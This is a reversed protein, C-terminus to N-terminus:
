MYHRYSHSALPCWQMLGESYMKSRTENVVIFCSPAKHSLNHWINPAQKVHSCCWHTRNPSPSCSSLHLQTKNTHPPTANLLPGRFMNCQSTQETQNLHMKKELEICKIHLPSDAQFMLVGSHHGLSALTKLLAQSRIWDDVNKKCVFAYVYTGHVEHHGRVSNKEVSKSCKIESLWWTWSEKVCEEKGADCVLM